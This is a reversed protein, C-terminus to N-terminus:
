KDMVNLSLESSKIIGATENGVNFLTDIISLNSVYADGFAQHYKNSQYEFKSKKSHVKNRLDECGEKDVAEASLVVSQSWGLMKMNLKLLKVLFTVLNGSPAQFLREYYPSYHEFFPTKGYASEISKWHVKNWKESYDIEVDNITTGLTSHSIPIVLQGVKNSFLVKCRNRYTQKVFKSEVDIVVEDYESILKYFAMSPLYHPEILCKRM